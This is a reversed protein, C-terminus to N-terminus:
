EIADISWCVDSLKGTSFEFLQSFFDALKDYIHNGDGATVQGRTEPRHFQGNRKM